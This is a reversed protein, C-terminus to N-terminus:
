AREPLRAPGEGEGEGEGGDAASHKPLSCAAGGWGQEVIAGRADWEWTSAASTTGATALSRHRAVAHRKHM